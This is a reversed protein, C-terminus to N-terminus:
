AGRLTNEQDLADVLDRGSLKEAQARAEEMLRRADNSRGLVGSARALEQLVAVRLRGAAAPALATAQELHSAAVRADAPAALQAHLASLLAQQARPLVHSLPVCEDLTAAASDAAGARMWARVLLLRGRLAWARQGLADLMDVAGLTAHASAAPSTTLLCEGLRLRALAGCPHLPTLRSRTVLTELARVADATHGMGALAGARAVGLDVLAAHLTADAPATDSPAHPLGQDRLGGDVQEAFVLAKDPQGDQWLAEVHAAALRTRLAAHGTKPLVKRGARAALAAAPHDDAMLNALARVLWAEGRLEPPATLDDTLATCARDAELPQARALHAQALSLTAVHAHAGLEAAQEYLGAAEDVHLLAQMTQAAQLLLPVARAPDPGRRLHYAARGPGGTLETWPIARLAEAAAAHWRTRAAPPLSDYAVEHLRTSTFRYGVVGGVVTSALLREHVLQGLRGMVDSLGAGGRERQLTRWLLVGEFEMGLVAGVRVLDRVDDPLADLRLQWAERPDTSGRTEAWAEGFARGQAMRTRCSAAMERVRRPWPPPDTLGALLADRDVGLWDPDPVGMEHVFMEVARAPVLPPLQYLRAGSHQLARAVHPPLAASADPDHTATAVMVVPGRVARRVLVTWAALTVLDARHVDELVVLLPADAARARLLDALLELAPPPPHAPDPPASEPLQTRGLLKWAARPVPRGDGLLPTLAAEVAANWAASGTGPPLRLVDRFLRAIPSPPWQAPDEACHVVCGRLGQQAAEEAMAMAAETKGAGHPGVLVAASGQGLGLAHHLMRTLRRKLRDRPDESSAEDVSVDRAPAPPGPPGAPLLTSLEFVGWGRPPRGVAVQGIGHGHASGALLRWATEGCLVQGRAAHGALDLAVVAPGGVVALERKLPSGVDGVYARGTELGARISWRTREDQLRASLALACAAAQRSAARPTDRLGFAVVATSGGAVLDLHLATGGHENVADHFARVGASLDLLVDHDEADDPYDVELPFAAVTVPRVEGTVRVAHDPSEVRPQVAPPMLPALLRYYSGPNRAFLPGLDAVRAPLGAVDPPVNMLRRGAGRQPGIHAQWGTLAAVLSPGVVLDGPAAADRLQAVTACLKGLVLQQLRNGPTEVLALRFRGLEAGARMTFRNPFAERLVQLMEVGCRAARHAPAAGADSHSWPAPGMGPVRHTFMCLIGTPSFTLLYGGRPFLAEELIRRLAVSLEGALRAAEDDAGGQGRREYRPPVVALDVSLLCGDVWRVSPRPRVGDVVAEEVLNYPLFTILRQLRALDADM